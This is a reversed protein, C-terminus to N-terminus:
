DFSAREYVVLTTNLCFVLYDKKYSNQKHFFSGDLLLEDHTALATELDTYGDPLLENLANITLDIYNGVSRECVGFEQGLHHQTKNETIYLLGIISINYWTLKHKRKTLEKIQQSVKQVTHKSVNLLASYRVSM